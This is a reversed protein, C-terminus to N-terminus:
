LVMKVSPEKCLAEYISIRTKEDKVQVTVNLVLYKGTASSRSATVNGAGATINTIAARMKTEDSGIVKYNWLCPYDINVTQDGNEMNM